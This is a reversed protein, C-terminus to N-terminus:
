VECWLSRPEIGLVMHDSLAEILIAGALCLALLLEQADGEWIDWRLEEGPWLIQYTGWARM